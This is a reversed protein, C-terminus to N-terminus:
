TIRTIEIEGVLDLLYAKRNVELEAITEINEAITEINEIEFGMEDNFWELPHIQPAVDGYGQVWNIVFYKTKTAM